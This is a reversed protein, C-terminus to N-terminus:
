GSAGGTAAAAAPTPATAQRDAPTPAAAPRDAPRSLEPALELAKARLAAIRKLEADVDRRRQEKTTADSRAAKQAAALAETTTKQLEQARTSYVDRLQRQILRLTDRADKAVVFSVEDAYKRHANKAHHRRATLQREREQRLTKRGMFLGIAATAPNLMSIGALMSGLMGFMLVGVYGGRMGTMIAEGRGMTKTDIETNVDIESVLRTPDMVQLRDIPVEGDEEFHEAVRRALEQARGHLLAYTEVVDRSVRRRLWPEFEDWTAAPDSADIADDAERGVLRLRGRLDHDLDASLDAIGDSLTQQWRALSSGLRAAKEQLRGLDAVAERSDPARLARRENQFQSALLGAVAAVNSAATRVTLKEANAVIGEQLYAVLESFGSEQNLARDGTRLAEMRLASSTCILPAEIRHRALHETNLDRIKRWAPYFDIKTLVCLVNPCMRRATVLFELEPATLEQSADSVLILADAMPLAGLTTATHPSGLGGVGPTDVLILGGALLKRPIDVEVAHVRRANAPNSAETVYAAVQDLSIRERIPPPPEDDAVAGDQGPPGLLVAAGPEDAYRVATPASTAIDDDVPCVPANLLANILSSKGQKYEGVVLVHFAPDLLRRRTQTLRQALDPRRYATAARTGMDVVSLAM